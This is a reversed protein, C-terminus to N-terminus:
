LAPGYVQQAAKFNKILEARTGKRKGKCVKCDYYGRPVNIILDKWDLAETARYEYSKGTGNCWSCTVVENAWKEFRKDMELKSMQGAGNCLKCNEYLHFADNGIGGCAKCIVMKDEPEDEQIVDLDDEIIKDEPHKKDTNPLTINEDSIYAIDRQEESEQIPYTINEVRSSIDKEDKDIIIYIGFVLLVIICALMFKIVKM